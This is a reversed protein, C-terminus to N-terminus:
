PMAILAQPLSLAATRGGSRRGRDPGCTPDGRLAPFAESLIMQEEDLVGVDDGDAAVPAIFIQEEGLGYQPLFANFQVLGIAAPIHGVMPGALDDAVRDDIQALPFAIDAGVHAGDFLNQNIRQLLESDAGASDGPQGSHPCTFSLKLCFDRGDSNM